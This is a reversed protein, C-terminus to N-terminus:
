RQLLWANLDTVSNFDGQLVRRGRRRPCDERAGHRARPGADAGRGRGSAAAALCAPTGVVVHVGKLYGQQQALAVEEDMLLGKVQSCMRVPPESITFFM